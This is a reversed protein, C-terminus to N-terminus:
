INVSKCAVLKIEARLLKQFRSKKELIDEPFVYITRSKPKKNIFKKIPQM